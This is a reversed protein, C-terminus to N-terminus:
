TPGDGPAGAPGGAPGGHPNAASGETSILLVASGAGVGLAARRARAGPGLLAARAGALAAAGCPGAPVGREALDRMASLAAADDIAVAADLGARLVPWALASPTGCNLGAMATPGTAVSTLADRRLSELLCAAAVPEVALVAPSAGDARSRCHRVVAQALSGVGVPAVVLGAAGAGADALQDDAEACLTAYGEAIWAPIAEYGPWGTDQVLIAGPRAALAAARRVADDYSAVGEVVTAGEDRIAAVAAPHVGPAILVTARHGLLRATRAVARGHNGDTACVLTLPRPVPGGAGGAREALARHVAWTAGLAKFAPLGLRSSEDKAFVRGVRLEAALAPLEV